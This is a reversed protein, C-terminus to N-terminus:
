SVPVTTLAFAAQLPVEFRAVGAANTTVVGAISDTGDGTANWEVLNFTTNAPLGGISYSSPPDTSAVNLSKGHSDLGVVTLEGSPGAYAALEQEPQDSTSDGGNQRYVPVSWDSSDWPDVGIIQWGPATTHFLLSLANYTPTLPYGESAPGTMWHVQQKLSNRDYVAWYADWKSTGAMGLQAAGIDFWFQQFAAINTRWIEPCNTPDAGYYMYQFTPKAGCTADGRIGYEMMYVPKQENPPIVKSTLNYTDRLRYGLRGSDNYQWYVHEAYGGVLNNMNDAIWTMWAYHDRAPNAGNEVLGGGMIQIQDGLGRAVLADRLAQALAKYQDLTVAGSNPENAVEAWRVNTLGHNNVLDALADAFRGMMDSIQLPPKRTTLNGLNQYGIDITAGAEQALQAVSVFSAYNDQWDTAHTGDQNEEWNDNYFIRVLESQLERVKTEVDAYEGPPMLVATIPAYLHENFQAGYGVLSPFLVRYPIALQSATVDVTASRTDNTADLEDPAAGTVLVKLETPVATTLAIDPFTVSVHGGAPVTVAVPGALPGFDGALTVNATAGTDGYVEAIDATVDVPKTTLTQLPAHVGSVVLDPRLLSRTSAEVIYTRPPTGTQILATTTIRLGRELSDLVVQAVGGPAAVDNLNRVLGTVGAETYTKIQVHKVTTVAGCGPASTFTLTLDTHVSGTLANATMAYPAATSSPCESSAAGRANGSAAGCAVVVALAGVIAGRRSSALHIRHM